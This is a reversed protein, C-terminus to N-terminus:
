ARPHAFEPVAWIVQRRFRFVGLRLNQSEDQFQSHFGFPLFIKRSRLERNM